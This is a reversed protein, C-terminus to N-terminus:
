TATSNTPMIVLSETPDVDPEGVFENLERHQEENGLPGIAYLTNGSNVTYHTGDPALSPQTFGTALPFEFAWMLDGDPTYASGGRHWSDDFQSVQPSTGRPAGEVSFMSAGDSLRVARTHGNVSFYIQDKGNDAPGFTAEIYGLFKGPPELNSWRLQAESGLDALSFVGLGASAVGYVNGDPGVAVDHLAFPRVESAFTWKLAGDDPYFAKIHNKDGTYITGDPGVDIGKSGAGTAQWKVTGDPYVAVLLGNVTLAYIMGDAALAPRVLSYPADIRVSWKLHSEPQPGGGSDGGGGGKGGGKDGGKGGGKGGAQADAVSLLFALMLLVFIGLPKRLKKCFSVDNSNSM